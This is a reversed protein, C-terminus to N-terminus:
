LPQDGTGLQDRLCKHNLIKLNQGMLLIQKLIFQIQVKYSYLQIKMRFHFLQKMVKPIVINEEKFTFDKHLQSESNQIDEIFKANYTEILNQTSPCYFGLAKIGTLIDQSYVVLQGQTWSRRMYYIHGLKQQIVGFMYIGLVSLNGLGYSM